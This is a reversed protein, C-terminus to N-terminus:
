KLLEAVIDSKKASKLEINNKEALEKLENVTMANLQEETYNLKSDTKTEEKVEDSEKIENTKDEKEKSNKDDTSVYVDIIRGANKENLEKMRDLSIDLIDGSKVLKKTEKDKFGRTAKYKIRVEM